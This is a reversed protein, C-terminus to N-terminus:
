STFLFLLAFLPSWVVVGPRLQSPSGALVLALYLSGGELWHCTRLSSMFLKIKDFDM